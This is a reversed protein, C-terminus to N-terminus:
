EGKLTREDEEIWKEFNQIGEQIDNIRRETEALQATARAIKEPDDSTALFRRIHAASIQFNELAVAAKRYRETNLELNKQVRSVNEAKLHPKEANLSNWLADHITRIKQIRDFCTKKHKALMEHKYKALLEGATKVAQGREVLGYIDRPPADAPIQALEVQKMIEDYHGRSISELIGYESKQKEKVEQCLTNFQKWLLDRDDHALPKLERFLGTVQKATNWFDQYKTIIPLNSRIPGTLSSLKKIEGALHEANKHANKLWPDDEPKM